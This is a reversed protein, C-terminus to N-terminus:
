EIVKVLNNFIEKNKIIKNENGLVSIYDQEMLKEIMKSLNRITNIDTKLVEDREKQLDEYTTGTFYNGESVEGKMSNTLPYDLKRITGIIYKTMERESTNFNKLYKYMNDYVKLTDKINPDRYSVIYVGGDKRFNSFVGYAGGKVRVNNWLYDFGAITELVNLAGSYEFGDRKFNGGKAVYQVNGQTLLGENKRELQFKYNQKELKEKGLNSIFKDLSKIFLNYDEEEGTFGIVLNNKNFVKKSTDKLKNIITEKDKPFNKELDCLFNYYSLGLIEEDYAGKENVYSLVKRSTIRHGNDLLRGEIRSKIEKILNYIRETDDFKTKNLVENTLELTKDFNKSLTKISVELLPTFNKDDGNKSYAVPNYSIGGININILNALNSYDYSETGLKGILDSLLRIYKINEQPVVSTDFYLNSYGIKNTPLNHYLIKINELNREEMPLKEANKDIDDLSLLPISDLAEKSDKSNQREKLKKCNNITNEIDEKSMNDKIKKLKEKANNEKEENLGKKPSLMVLSSHNNKLLYKDILSEFYNSTLAERIKNFAEDYRLHTFPDGGYLWSDMMRMCYILGSPYGDFEGERLEFEMKNISAEILSKDIGKDVLDKLTDLIVKRFEEKDSDNAGKSTIIFVPQKISNYFEGSVSMGIGNDILAKKVPSAPTKLLLHNLIEFALYLDRDTSEGVVFNMSLYTKNDLSDDKAVGYFYQKEVPKEFPKQLKIQSDINEKSFDKLYNDNIFSLEKKTDGNGYLLIYSNSPHYYKKHFKLFNEYTLDPIKEPDGGSSEKYTNDPFLTEPIKRYLMSDPSSYAGKMENYVVGNYKLPKNKDEINFHWGEQMFIEPYKYINPYFVADLYVDMLNFFDKENRSAVPYLTKDPFTMANLFTNLSGKLLEVFPEKTDFKRSGCLVSHEIIHPVGTSDEPPTKFGISFVKNDDNNEIKILNSGTGEHIFFYGKSNIEKLEVIEELRFDEYVQNIEMIM